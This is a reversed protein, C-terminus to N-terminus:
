QERTSRVSQEARLTRAREDPGAHQWGPAWTIYRWRDVWRDASLCDSCMRRYEGFAVLFPNFSRINHTLGYRVPEADDEPSFTGFLRDWVILVGGLNCDLYRVNSAHHVRHHSPTNFVSEIVSPLRGVLETHIWFQYFLNLGIMLFIMLPDFGLLPLPLWFFYKHVRETVGQRLATGLNLKQSSHHPVHGAWLLRVDHNARHFWYYIFDDLFFLLGWAWWQREVVDRLPSIEHLVFFVLFACVKPIADVLSAFVLMTMSVIFDKGQYLGLRRRRSLWSEVVLAILFFPVIISTLPDNTVQRVAEELTM